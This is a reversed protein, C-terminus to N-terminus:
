INGTPCNSDLLDSWFGDPLKFRHLFIDKLDEENNSPCTESCLLKVEEEM